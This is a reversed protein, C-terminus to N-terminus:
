ESKTKKLNILVLYIILSGLMPVLYVGQIAILRIQPIHIANLLFFSVFNTVLLAFSFAFIKINKKELPFRFVNFRIFILFILVLSYLCFLRWNIVLINKYSEFFNIKFQEIYGKPNKKIQKLAFSKLDQDIENYGDIDM